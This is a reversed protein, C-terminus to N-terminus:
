IKRPASEEIGFSQELDRRGSDQDRSGAIAEPPLRLLRQCEDVLFQTEMFPKYGTDLWRIHGSADVFICGHLGMKEFDDYARFTKFAAMSADSLIPFPFPKKSKSKENAKLAEAPPDNTIAILELGAAKFKSHAEAFANLQEMCGACQHGLYFILVVNKGAFDRDTVAKGEPTLASWARGDPAHWHVPGLAALAPRVGTDDRKPAPARWGNKLGVKPALVDLRVALPLDADMAYAMKGAAELAQKAEDTKGCSFLVEAKAGTGSLDQPFNKTLELAKAKDGLRLRCRALREKPIDGPTDLAKAAAANDKKLILALARLEALANDLATPSSTKEGGKAEGAAKGKGKAKGRADAAIGDAKDPKKEGAPEAKRVEENAAPQSKAGQKAKDKEKKQLAELAAITSALDDAHDLNFQAVGRARLRTIEHSSQPVADILPGATESLLRDWQEWRLRTEILRTRGFSASCGGKDLTNYVPHRPIEILSRALGAADAARGLENFTRVLWEENHAYNHIQDPLVLNEIQCAHDVRTSAEQQWAADDFRKLKSYTHGPMHWM